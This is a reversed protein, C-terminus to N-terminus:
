YKALRPRGAAPKVRGSAARRSSRGHQLWIIDAGHARLRCLFQRVAPDIDQFRDIRIELPPTRHELARSCARELRGIDRRLLPGAVTVIYRDGARPDGIVTLSIRAMRRRLALRAGACQGSYNSNLTIDNYGTIPLHFTNSM